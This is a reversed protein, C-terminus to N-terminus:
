HRKLRSGSFTGSFERTATYVFIELASPVVIIDRKEHSESFAADAAELWPLRLPSIGRDLCKEEFKEFKPFVIAGMGEYGGFIIEAEDLYSSDKGSIIEEKFYNGIKM